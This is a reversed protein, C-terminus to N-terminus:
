ICDHAMDIAQCVMDRATEILQAEDDDPGVSSAGWFGRGDADCQSDGYYFHFTPGDDDFCYTGDGPLIQIRVDICPEADDDYPDTIEAPDYTRAEARVDQLYRYLEQIAEAELTEIAQLTEHM